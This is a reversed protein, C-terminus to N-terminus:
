ANSAQSVVGAAYEVFFQIGDMVLSEIQAREENPYGCNIGVYGLEDTTYLGQEIMDKKTASFALRCVYFIAYAVTM